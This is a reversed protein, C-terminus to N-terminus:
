GMLVSGETAETPTRYMSQLFEKQNSGFRHVVIGGCPVWGKSTLFNVKTILSELEPDVVVKYNEM